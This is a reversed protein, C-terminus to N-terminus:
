VWGRERCARAVREVAMVIAADRMDIGKSHAFDSVDYYASTMKVDLQSLIDGKGWYYNNNSQVQEYYSCIVGGANALLDPVIYIGRSKLLTDARPTTPGSAGEAIIKVRKSIKGVKSRSIQQGLAAPILIDVEQELWADGPLVEYGLDQAKTKDIEGYTNTIRRLEFLNIGATKRFAYATKDGQDYCSVCTVAGGMQQYLQIAYQGVNGFGQVSALTNLINFGVEKLAERVTIIVGYGTAETRGRSGGLGIPKGTIFGPFKGGYIAEYEDLMWVMHQANTMFDPYAVDMLPGINKAIQRVWGRCLREQERVSLDRPDAIFGGMSGGLPIDVVACKWTMWMAQARLTDVTGHPHFRVGGKGPGRADNHQVRFGRYVQVSGDDMRVPVGFHYERISYRLLDRTANELDLLDAARDFQKQAVKYPSPRTKM